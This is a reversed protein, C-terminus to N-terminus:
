APSAAGLLQRGDLSDPVPVDLLGLVTPAIDLVNSDAPLQGGRPIDPGIAFLRSEVTHDGTRPTNKKEVRTTLLGVRKSRCSEIKGLDTRFVVMLDPVDPHREEVGFAEEATVVHHVVKEGSAPDELELLANRLEALVSDAEAGPEICGHPERGRVNLRIAGVRNNPVAIARTSSSELPWPLSGAVQQLRERSRGPVVRRLAARVGTPLRSRFSAVRGRGSGAGLRVLLEPLLQYGGVESGMGHSLVVLATANEGAAELLKGVAEDVRQYVAPIAEALRKPVSADGAEAAELYHWLQHGVCHTEAFACTFLDWNERGLLDLLLAEKKEVGELLLDALREYGAQTRGHIRDCSDVPHDGYRARLEELLGPPHAQIGFNRDHLGWELVQVGNLDHSLVAQPQDVVAVRRGHRSAISWYYDCADIEDAEIERLRSEGTHLQRPHYYQGLKGSSRGTTLEPWIGGPLSELSNGLRAVSGEAALRAFTPLRGEAQLREVLTAEAADLSIVIVRAPM